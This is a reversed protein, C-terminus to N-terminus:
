SPQKNAIHNLWPCRILRLVGAKPGYTRYYDISGSLRNRLVGFDLGFNFGTTTEWSLNPNALSVVRQGFATSGGDGFVYAPYTDLRALSSYRDVLNGNAGYSGRLKLQNISSVNLFNEESLVWGFGVSPFLAIKNNNSFGSFGDRRITATVLYKYKFEYNIRGMQYLYNENWASSNIKQITGLSLDNYGLRLSNYNIGEADTQEFNRERRGAVLTVNINHIDNFSKKYNLINDLTWDYSHDNYKSAGGAAGNAYDNSFYQRTWSYNNGFNLRYNLGEIFPVDIDAYFNGFLSNRKDFDNAASILFPNSTNAQNPNLIFNGEDDTPKVLPTMIVIGNLNPSVGSYDSFSGFTQAGVKFWKLLKNELNIRTTIRDFKDNMVFGKQNTYGGSIFYSMEGTSGRVSLNHASIYGPNTTNDWWNYDTGNEYGERLPVDNVVDMYTYNPNPQTYDPALYAKRWDIDASKALFGERDLLTLSNTPNQTTYSGTYNFVPKSAKQGGRTTILMVGNAAQAGFIAMSSPDKLVDISEIDNPNLDAIRGTFIIGDVVLLVNRNGSITTAGRISISPNQGASNVQGINLGPVTGQLSQAINVNPSERFAEINARAVSGTLDSKKQTGYGVVVVEELAKRDLNLRIDITSQGGIAIEQSVFGIFSFMLTGGAQNEPITLTFRGEGDTSTGITSGKLVVSVGPLGDGNESSTVRGSVPRDVATTIGAPGEGGFPTAGAPNGAIVSGSDPLGSNARNSSPHQNVKRAHKIIIVNKGMKEFILNYPKLLAGLAKEPTKQLHWEDGSVLNDKILDSEYSFVVKHKLELEGLAQKLTFKKESQVASKHNSVLLTQAYSTRFGTALLLVLLILLPRGSEPPLFKVDAM